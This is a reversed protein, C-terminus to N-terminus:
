YNNIILISAKCRYEYPILSTTLPVAASITERSPSICVLAFSPTYCEKEQM